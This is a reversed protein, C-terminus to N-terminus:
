KHIHIHTYTNTYQTYTYMNTYIFTHIYTFTCTFSSIHTNMDTDPRSHLFRVTSVKETEKVCMSVWLIVACMLLRGNRQTLIKRGADAYHRDAPLESFIHAKDSRSCPSLTPLSGMEASRPCAVREGSEQEVQFHLCAWLGQCGRTIHSGTEGSVRPVGWITCAGELHALATAGLPIAESGVDSGLDQPGWCM